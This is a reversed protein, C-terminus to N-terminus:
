GAGLHASATSQQRCVLIAAVFGGRFLPSQTEPKSNPPSHTISSTNGNYSLQYLLENTVLLDSTRLWDVAGCGQTSFGLSM